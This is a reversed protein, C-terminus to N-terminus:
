AEAPRDAPGPEACAAIRGAMYRCFAVAEEPPASLPRGGEYAALAGKVAGCLPEPLRELAWRGGEAKSLLLGEEGYACVRCLNLIVYAPNEGVDQEADEVDACVSRWFFARDVPGFVAEVPEGCLVIGRSRIVTFHAALDPDGGHASRCYGEPDQLCRELHMTSFHLEFPTPYVFRRCHERLVVSMELGKGPARRNIDVTRNLLHVKEEVSLPEEVVVIYDIDSVEWRFCGFAISGHVYVGVLKESLVDQCATRIERLIEQLREM